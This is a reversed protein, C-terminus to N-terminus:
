CTVEPFMGLAQLIEATFRDISNPDALDSARLKAVAAFVAANCGTLIEANRRISAEDYMFEVTIRPPGYVDCDVRTNVVGGPMAKYLYDFITKV